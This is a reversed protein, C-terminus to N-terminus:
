QIVFVYNLNKLDALIEVTVDQFPKNKEKKINIVKAVPINSAYIESIGSTFVIDDVEVVSSKIVGELVGYKGHTPKFISLIMDKGVKVSVAFNKDNVTQIKTANEGVNITKGFLGNMDIVAQNKNLDRNKGVDIIVSHISSSFSHNVINAPLLSLKEYSDKFNLM